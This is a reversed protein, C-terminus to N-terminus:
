EDLADESEDCEKLFSIFGDLDCDKRDITREVIENQDGIVCSKM